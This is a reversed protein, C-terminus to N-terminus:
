MAVNWLTFDETVKVRNPLIALFRNSVKDDAELIELAM